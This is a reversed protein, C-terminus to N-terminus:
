NSMRILRQEARFWSYEHSTGCSSTSAEWDVMARIVVLLAELLVRCCQSTAVWPDWPNRPNATSWHVSAVCGVCQKSTQIKASPRKLLSQIRWFSFSPSRRMAAGIYSTKLARQIPGWPSAATSMISVRLQVFMFLSSQLTLPSWFLEFFCNSWNPMHQVHGWVWYSCPSATKIHNRQSRRLWSIGHLEIWLWWFFRQTVELSFRCPPQPCAFFEFPKRKSCHCAAQWQGHTEMHVAVHYIIFYLLIVYWFWIM